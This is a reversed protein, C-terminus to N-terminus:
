FTYLRLPISASATTSSYRPYAVRSRGNMASVRVIRAFASSRSSVTRRSPACAVSSSTSWPVYGNTVLEFGVAPPAHTPEPTGGVRILWTMPTILAYVVRTPAPGNGVSSNSSLPACRRLTPTSYPVVVPRSRRQPQNSATTPRYATRTFPMVSRTTVFSSTSLPRSGTGIQTPYSISPSRCSLMGIVWVANWWARGTYSSSGPQDSSM